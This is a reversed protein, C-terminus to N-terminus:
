GSLSLQTPNITGEAPFILTSYDVTTNGESFKFRGDFYITKDKLKSEVDNAFLTDLVISDETVNQITDGSNITLTGSKVAAVM